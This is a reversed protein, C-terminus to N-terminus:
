RSSEKSNKEMFHKTLIVLGFIQTWESVINGVVQGWKANPDMMRFAIVWGIGTIILFISLGHDRFFARTPSCEYNPPRRSEASQKEYLYKTALVTVVVGSWDAIANGFFSGWHTSPDSKIYFLVWCLMIAIAAISLSHQRLFTKKHPAAKPAQGAHPIQCTKPDQGTKPAQAAKLIQSKEADIKKPPTSL